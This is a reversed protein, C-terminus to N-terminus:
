YMPLITDTPDILFPPQDGYWWFWDGQPPRYGATYIELHLQKTGSVTGIIQGQELVAGVVIGNNQISLKNLEAYNAVFDGHDVLVAYTREGTSPRTYFLDVKVVTGEKMSRTIAGEGSLPYIDIGAHKRGGSRAAGFYPYDTSGQSWKGCAVSEDKTFPYAISEDIPRTLGLMGQQSETDNASEESSSEAERDSEASGDSIFLTILSGSHVTQFAEPEHRLVRDKDQRSGKEVVLEYGLGIRTLREVADERPLGKLDELKFSDPISSVTLMVTSGSKLRTGADHSQEIVMNPTRDICEVKRDIEVKLSAKDAETHADDILLGVFDPVSSYDGSLLVVAVFIIVLITLASFGLCIFTKRKM